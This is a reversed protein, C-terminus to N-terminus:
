LILSLVIFFYLEDFFTTRLVVKMHNAFSQLPMPEFKKGLMQPHLLLQQIFSYFCLM